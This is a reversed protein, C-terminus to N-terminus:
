ARRRSLSSLRLLVPVMLEVGAGLIPGSLGIMMSVAIGGGIDGGVMAFGAALAGERLGWGGLSIPISSVFLTVPVILLCASLSVPAHVANAWYYTLPVILLSSAFGLAVCLAGRGSGTLVARADMAVAAAYRGVLPLKAVLSPAEVLCAFGALGILCVAAITAFTVGSDIRYAFFPLTVTVLAVLTMLGVVRDCVVSRTAAALGLRPRLLVIRVVDGGVTSPLPAALLMSRGVGLTLQSFEIAAGSLLRTVMQWRWVLVLLQAVAVGTGIAIFAVNAENLKELVREAGAIHLVLALLGITVVARLVMVVGRRLMM